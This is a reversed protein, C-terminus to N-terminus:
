FMRRIAREPRGLAGSRGVRRSTPPGAHIWTRGALLRSDTVLSARACAGDQTRRLFRAEVLADLLADCTLVDLGWLCQVQIPCRVNFGLTAMSLADHALGRLDAAASGYFSNQMIVVSIMEGLANLIAKGSLNYVSSKRWIPGCTSQQDTLLPLDSQQNISGFKASPVIDLRKFSMGSEYSVVLLLYLADRDDGRMVPLMPQNARKSDEHM